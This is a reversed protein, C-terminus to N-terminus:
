PLAKWSDVVDADIVQQDHVTGNKLAQWQEARTQPRRDPEDDYRAANLWTTPHAVYQPDTDTTREAYSRAAAIVLGPAAGRKLASTWAQEAKRKGVRRPYATWFEDFRPARAHEVAAATSRTKLVEGRNRQEETGTALTERPDGSDSTVPTDGRDPSDVGPHSVGSIRGQGIGGPELSERSGGSPTAPTDRPDGSVPTSESTPPTHNPPVEPYRPKNPKDVRQHRTFNRVQIYRRGAVEYRYILLGRSLTALGERIFTRVENQDEELAFLDAAIARYDDIGVGNDDVYQWLGVFLLRHERSLRTIDDSRWFEPKITRIRM